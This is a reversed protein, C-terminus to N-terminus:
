LTKQKQKIKIKEAKFRLKYIKEDKVNVKYIYITSRINDM